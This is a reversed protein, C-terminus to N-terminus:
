NPSSPLIKNKLDCFSASFEELAITDGYCGECFYILKKAVKKKKAM